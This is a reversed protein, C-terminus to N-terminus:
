LGVENQQGAAAPSMVREGPIHQGENAPEHKPALQGVMPQPRRGRLRDIGRGIVKGAGAAGAGILLNGALPMAGGAFGGVLGGIGAGLQEGKGPGDPAEKHALTSVAGAAPLGLTLANAWVPANSLQERASAGITNVVGDRQMGRLYGPLSTLGREQVDEAAALGRRARDVQKASATTPLAHLAKRANAAGGGIAELEDPRMMGTLSHTQRQGFRALSGVADGRTALHAGRGTLAGAGAGAATGILAGKGAGRLAGGLASLAAGGTSAGEEKANHYNRAAGLAGGALAGGAMGVGALSGAARLRPAARAVLESFGAAEKRLEDRFALLVTESLNPM